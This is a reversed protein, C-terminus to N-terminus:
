QSHFNANALPFIFYISILVLFLPFYSFLFIFLCFYPHLPFQLFLFPFILSFMWENVWKNIIWKQLSPCLSSVLLYPVLLPTHSSLQIATLLPLFWDFFSCGVYTKQLYCTVHLKRKSPNLHMTWANPKSTMKKDNAHSKGLNVIHHVVKGKWKNSLWPTTPERQNLNPNSTSEPDQQTPRLFIGM